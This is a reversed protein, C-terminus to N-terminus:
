RSFRMCDGQYNGHHGRPRQSIEERLLDYLLWLGQFKGTSTGTVYFSKVLIPFFIPPIVKALNATIRGEQFSEDAFHNLLILQLQKTEKRALSDCPLSDLIHLVSFSTKTDLLLSQFLNRV